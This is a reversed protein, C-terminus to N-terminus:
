YVLKWESSGKEKIEVLRFWKSKAGNIVEFEFVERFRRDYERAYYDRTHHIRRVVIEQNTIDDKGFIPEHIGTFDERSLVEQIDRVLYEYTADLNDRAEFDVITILANLLSVNFLVELEQEDEESSPLLILARLLEPHTLRIGTKTGVGTFVFRGSEGTRISTDSVVLDVGSVPTRTLPEIITGSVKVFKEEEKGFYLSSFAAGAVVFLAVLVYM